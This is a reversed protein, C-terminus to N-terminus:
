PAAGRVTSSLSVVTQHSRRRQQYERQRLKRCARCQRWNTKPVVWLNAGTYPHGQPCHTKRREFLDSRRTNESPTVLEIHSPRVCARNRCLHDSELGEPIPGILEEYATRHAGHNRGLWYFNAYGSTGGVSAMWMWCPGLEPRHAPIPGNPNVKAWFRAPLRTDGFTPTSFQTLM